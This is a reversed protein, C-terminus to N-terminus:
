DIFSRSCHLCKTVFEYDNYQSDYLNMKCYPCKKNECFIWKDSDTLKDM